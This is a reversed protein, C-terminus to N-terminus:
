RRQSALTQADVLYRGSNNDELRKAIATARQEIKRAEAKRGLRRFARAQTELVYRVMADNPGFASEATVLAHQLLPLAEEPEGMQLRIQALVVEDQVTEPYNRGYRGILIDLSEQVYKEALAYKHERIMVSGAHSLATALVHTDNESEQFCQAAALFEQEASSLRDAMLDLFARDYLLFGQLRVREGAFTDFLKQMRDVLQRAYAQQGSELKLVALLHLSNFANLRAEQTESQAESLARFCSREAEARLDLEHEVSCLCNLTHARRPDGPDLSRAVAYAEQYTARAKELRGQRQLSVGRDRLVEWSTQGASACAAISLLTAPGLLSTKM